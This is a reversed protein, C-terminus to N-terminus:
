PRGGAPVEARTQWLASTRLERAEARLATPATTIYLDRGDAGGLICGIALDDGTSIEHTVRGDLSCRVVRKSTANASWVAGEADCSIGDPRDAEDFQIVLERDGLSGDDRIPLRWLRHGFSEAVVLTTGDPTIALGNAYLFGDVLLRPGKEREVLYIGSNIATPMNDPYSLGQNAIYIRDEFDIVIDGWDYPSLGGLDVLVMLEGDVLQWLRAATLASVIISGDDNFGISIPSSPLDTVRSVEGRPTVREISDNHIDTLYIANDHWRPGEAFAFGNAVMSLATVTM